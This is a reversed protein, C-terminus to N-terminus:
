GKRVVCAQSHKRLAECISRARAETLAKVKLRYLNRGHPGKGREVDSVAGQLETAFRASLRRWQGLAKAHTTFAGLQVSYAGTVAPETGTAGPPAPTAAAPSPAGPAATAPSGNQAFSEIRTRAEAAMKAQPHQELFQRYADATDTTSARQWDREETLQTIRAQADAARASKPHSTIFDQYAEVTNATQASRWDRQEHSCGSAAALLALSMLIVGTRRLSM